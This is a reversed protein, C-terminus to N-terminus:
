RQLPQTAACAAAIDAAAAEAQARICVCVCCAAVPMGGHKVALVSMKPHCDTNCRMCRCYRCCCCWSPGKYVCCAALCAVKSYFASVDTPASTATQTAANSPLHPCLVANSPLHTCLVPTVYRVHGTTLSATDDYSQLQEDSRNPPAQTERQSTGAHM